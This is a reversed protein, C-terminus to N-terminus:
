HAACFGIVAAMIARMALAGDKFSKFAGLIEVNWFNRLNEGHFIEFVKPIDAWMQVYLYDFFETTGHLLGVPEAVLDHGSVWQAHVNGIPYNWLDVSSALTAAFFYDAFYNLMYASLLFMIPMAILLGTTIDGSLFEYIRDFMKQEDSEQSGKDTPLQVGGRNSDTRLEEALADPPFRSLFNSFSEVEVKQCEWDYYCAWECNHTFCLRCGSSIIWAIFIISLVCLALLVTIPILGIFLYAVVLELFFMM